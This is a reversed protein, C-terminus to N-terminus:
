KKDEKKYVLWSFFTHSFEFRKTGAWYGLFSAIPMVLYMLLWYVVSITGDAAARFGIFSYGWWQFGFQLILKLGMELSFNALSLSYSLHYLLSLLLTMALTLLTIVVGKLMYPKHTSYSKIDKEAIKYAASYVTIIYLISTAVSMIYWGTQIALLVYFVLPGFVVSYLQAKVHAWMMKLSIDLYHKM